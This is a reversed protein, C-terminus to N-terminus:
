HEVGLLFSVESGVMKFNASSSSVIFLRHGLEIEPGSSGLLSGVGASSEVNLLM